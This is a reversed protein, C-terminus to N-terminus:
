RLVPYVSTRLTSNTSKFLDHILTYLREQDGRDQIMKMDHFRKTRTEIANMKIGLDFGEALGQNKDMLIGVTKGDGTQLFYECCVFAYRDKRATMLLGQIFSLERDSLLKQGLVNREQPFISVNCRLLVVPPNLIEENRGHGHHLLGFVATITSVLLLFNYM